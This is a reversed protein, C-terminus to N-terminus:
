DGRHSRGPTSARSRGTNTGRSRSSHVSYVSGGGDDSNAGSSAYSTDDGDGNWGQEQVLERVSTHNIKATEKVDCGLSHPNEGCVYCELNELQPYKCSTDYYSTLAVNMVKARKRDPCERALHSGDGCIWCTRKSYKSAPLAPAAHRHDRSKSKGFSLANLGFTTREISGGTELQQAISFLDELPGDLKASSLLHTRTDPPLHRLIIAKAFGSRPDGLTLHDVNDPPKKRSLLALLDNYSARLENVTTPCWTPDLFKMSALIEVPATGVYLAYLWKVIGERGTHCKALNFQSKAKGELRASMMVAEQRADAGQGQKALDEFFYQWEIDLSHIALAAQVPELKDLNVLKPKEPVYVKQYAMQLSSLPAHNPSVNNSPPNGTSGSAGSTVAGAAKKEHFQKWIATFMATGMANKAFHQEISQYKNVPLDGAYLLFEDDLDQVSAPLPPVATMTGRFEVVPEQAPLGQPATPTQRPGKKPNKELPPM